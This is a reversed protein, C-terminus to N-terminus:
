LSKVQCKVQQAVLNILDTWRILPHVPTIHCVYVCFCFSIYSQAWHFIILAKLARATCTYIISAFIMTICVITPITPHWLQWQLDCKFHPRTFINEANCAIALCRIYRTSGVNIGVSIEVRMGEAGSISIKRYHKNQHIRRIGSVM